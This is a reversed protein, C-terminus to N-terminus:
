RFRPKIVEFNLVKRKSNISVPISYKGLAMITTDIKILLSCTDNKLLGNECGSISVGDVTELLDSLISMDNKSINTVYIVAKYKKGSELMGYFVSEDVPNLLFSESNNDSNNTSVNDTTNNSTSAVISGTISLSVGNIKIVQSITQAFSQVGNLKLVIDCSGQYAVNVCSNSELFVPSKLSSDDVIL